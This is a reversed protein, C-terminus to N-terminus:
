NVGHEHATTKGEHEPCPCLEADIAWRHEKPVLDAPMSQVARIYVENAVHLKQDAQALEGAAKCICNKCGEDYESIVNYVAGEREEQLRDVDGMLTDLTKTDTM